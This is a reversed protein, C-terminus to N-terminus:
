RTERWLDSERGLRFPRKAMIRVALGIAFWADRALLDVAHQVPLPAADERLSCPTSSHLEMFDFGVRVAREAAQGFNEVVSEIEASYQCM